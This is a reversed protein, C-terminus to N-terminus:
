EPAINRIDRIVYSNYILGYISGKEINEQYICYADTTMESWESWETVHPVADGNRYHTVKLNEAMWWQNGIKVTRYVNGDIDTVTRNVTINCVTNETIVLDPQEYSEIDEGTIRLVFVNSLM